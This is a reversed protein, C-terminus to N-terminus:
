EKYLKQSKNVSNLLLNFRTRNSREILLYEPRKIKIKGLPNQEGEENDNEHVKIEVFSSNISNQAKSSQLEKYKKQMISLDDEIKEELLTLKLNDKFLSSRIQNLKELKEKKMKINKELIKLNEEM